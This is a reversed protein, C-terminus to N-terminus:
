AGGWPRGRRGRVASCRRSTRSAQRRLPKGVPSKAGRTPIELCVRYAQFFFNSVSPGASGSSLGRPPGVPLRRGSGVRRAMRMSLSALGSQPQSRM